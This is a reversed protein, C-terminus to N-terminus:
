GAYADELSQMNYLFTRFPSKPAGMINITSKYKLPLMKMCSLRNVHQKRKPVSFICLEIFFQCGNLSSRVILLIAGKTGSIMIVLVRRSWSFLWTGSIVIVLSISTASPCVVDRVLRSARISIECCLSEIGSERGRISRNILSLSALSPSPGAGAHLHSVSQFRITPPAPANFHQLPQLLSQFTRNTECSSDALDELTM